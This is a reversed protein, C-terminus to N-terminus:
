KLRYIDVLLSDDTLRRMADPEDYVILISNSQGLCPYLVLGEAKDGVPNFPLNFVLTLDGSEQDTLSDGPRDCAGSLRFLTMAGLLDMTPGALILLDDGDFCLDRIGLGNLDLFHKKYRKEQNIPKLHLTAPDSDDLEVELIIAWGRLVPGRLGLFLRNHRAALGEIDFGNEKSPLAAAIYAGLHEDDALAQTLDNTTADKALCAASLTHKPTHPDAGQKVLEGNIFPIRGIMYRNPEANIEALRQIDKEPKKGKTKKRKTSHSGTFWLYPDAFDMGEIDIESDAEDLELFDAIAYSQHDGFVGAELPSLRELSVLEDSAVWLSGDPTRTAASINNMLDSSADGFQLLARSLLFPNM